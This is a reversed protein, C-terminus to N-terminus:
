KKKECLVLYGESLNTKNFLRSFHYFPVILKEIDIKILFSPLKIPNIGSGKSRKEMSHSKSKKLVRKFMARRAFRITNTFPYGYNVMEKIMLGNTEVLKILDEKEYRRFHGVAEDSEDFLKQKAPVSILLYKNSVAILKKLLAADEKVHELVECCIVVDYKKRGLESQDGKILALKKDSINKKRRLSEATKIADASYDLGVGSFGKGVLTLALEGAGCGVDVFTKIDNQEKLIRLINLKRFLYRPAKYFTM